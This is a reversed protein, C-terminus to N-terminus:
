NWDGEFIIPKGSEMMELLEDINWPKYTYGPPVNTNRFSAGSLLSEKAEDFREYAYQEANHAWVWRGITPMIKDPYKALLEFDANERNAQNQFGLIQCCSVREFRPKDTERTTGKYCVHTIM